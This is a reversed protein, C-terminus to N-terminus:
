QQTLIGSGYRNIWGTLVGRSLGNIYHGNGLHLEDAIQEASCGGTDEITIDSDPGNRDFVIDSNILAYRNTGLAGSTPIHPEPIVTEPCIDAEDIVQDGDDDPDVCDPQTDGDFDPSLSQEDLPDSGCALEDEDRQGDNDDDGDICNPLDDADTDPSLSAPDLPDSGCTSETQNDQGDGDADPDCVDGLGDSDLDEQDSNDTYPCNDVRDEVGDMDSDAILPHTNYVYAEDWDSVGDGDSDQNIQCFYNVSYHKLWIRDDSLTDLSLLIAHLQGPFRSEEDDLQNWWDIGEPEEGGFFTPNYDYALVPSPPSPPASRNVSSQILRFAAGDDTKRFLHIGGRVEEPDITSRGVLVYLDEWPSFVGGQMYTFIGEIPSGNREVVPIQDLFTLFGGQEEDELKSFDISYRYLPDSATLKNGSTYLLEDVPNIALWGTRNQIHGISMWDVLSLDNARFVAIITLDNLVLCSYTPAIPCYEYEPPDGPGKGEFPVFLYGRYQDLDGYHNVGMEKLQPPIGVRILQGEDRGDVARWNREYKYMNDVQTFYWYRGDNAVGQASESWDPNDTNGPANGLYTYSPCEDVLDAVAVTSLAAALVFGIVNRM